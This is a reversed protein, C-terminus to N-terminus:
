FEWPQAYGDGLEYGKPRRHQPITAAMHGLPRRSYITLPNPAPLAKQTPPRIGRLICDAIIWPNTMFKALAMRRHKFSVHAPM